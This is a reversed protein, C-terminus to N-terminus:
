CNSVWWICVECRWKKQKEREKKSSVSVIALLHQLQSQILNALFIKKLCRDSFRLSLTLIWILFCWFIDFYPWLTWYLAVKPKLLPGRRRFIICKVKEVQHFSNKTGHHAQSITGRLRAGEVPNKIHKLFIMILHFHHADSCFMFSQNVDVFSTMIRLSVRDVNGFAPASQVGTIWQIKAHPMLGAAIKASSTDTAASRCILALFGVVILIIQKTRSFFQM